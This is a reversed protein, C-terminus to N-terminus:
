KQDTMCSTESYLLPMYSQYLGDDDKFSERQLRKSYQFKCQKIEDEKAYLKVLLTQLPADGWRFYFISGNKDIKDTITKVDERQWFDTKTIFFNNYYIIPQELPINNENEIDIDFICLPYNFNIVSIAFAFGFEVTM